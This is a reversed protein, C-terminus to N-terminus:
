SGSFNEEVTEENNIWSVSTDKMQCRQLMQCQEGSGGGQFM